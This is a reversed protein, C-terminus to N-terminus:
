ARGKMKRRSQRSMNWPSYSYADPLFCSMQILKQNFIKNGKVTDSDYECTIETIQSEWAGAQLMGYLLDIIYQWAHVLLYQLKQGKM